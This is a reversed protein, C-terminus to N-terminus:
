KKLINLLVVLEARYDWQTTKKKWKLWQEFLQFRKAGDINMFSKRIGQWVDDCVNVGPYMWGNDLATLLAEIADVITVPTKWYTRLIDMRQEVTYEPNIHMLIYHGHDGRLKAVATAITGVTDGQIETESGSM